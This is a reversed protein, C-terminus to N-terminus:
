KRAYRSPTKKYDFWTDDEGTQHHFVLLVKAHSRVSFHKPLWIGDAVPMKELEFRTGPEVTALFGGITVPSIVDAQVKVWQFSQQDIWLTGRMGTLVRTERDTPQYGKRPTARLIYVSRGAVQGKGTLQFTFARTLEEMLRHDRRRDKEYEAVRRAAEQDSESRRAGVAKQFKADENKQEAASLPAGNERNLKRYPSGYLITVQWTKTGKATKVTESYSYEAAATWDRQNATVSQQIIGNADHAATAGEAPVLRPIMLDAM